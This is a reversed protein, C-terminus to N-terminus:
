HGLDARKLVHPLYVRQPFPDLRAYCVRDGPRAVWVAHLASASPDAVLDPNLVGAVGQCAGSNVQQPAEWVGVAESRWVVLTQYSTKWLVYRHGLRDFALRPRESQGGQDVPLTSVQEPLLWEYASRSTQYQLRSTFVYFNCDAKQELWVAHLQGGPAVVTSPALAGLGAGWPNAPCQAPAAGKGTLNTSVTTAPTWSTPQGTADLPASGWFIVPTNDSYNRGEWVVHASLGPEQLVAVSPLYGSYCSPSGPNPNDCDPTGLWGYLPRGTQWDSGVRAYYILPRPATGEEWVIHARIENDQPEKVVFLAPNTSQQTTPFLPPDRAPLPWGWTDSPLKQIYNIDYQSGNENFTQFVAHLSGTPGVALRPTRSALAGSLFEPTATAAPSRALWLADDRLPNTPHASWWLVQAEGNATALVAPESAPESVFYGDVESGGPSVAAPTSM